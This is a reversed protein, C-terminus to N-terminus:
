AIMDKITEWGSCDYVLSWFVNVAVYLLSYKKEYFLINMRWPDRTNNELVFEFTVTFWGLRLSEVVKLLSNGHPLLEVGAM